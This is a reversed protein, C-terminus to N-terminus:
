IWGESKLESITEAHLIPQLNTLVTAFELAEKSADEIQRSFRTRAPPAKREGQNAFRNTFKSEVSKASPAPKNKRAQTKRQSQKQAKCECPTAACIFCMQDFSM